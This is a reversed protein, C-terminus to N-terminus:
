GHSVFCLVIGPIINPNCHLYPGYQADFQVDFAGIVTRDELFCDHTNYPPTCNSGALYRELLFGMDEAADGTNHDVLDTVNYPTM